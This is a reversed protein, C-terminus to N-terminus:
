TTSQIIMKQSFIFCIHSKLYSYVFPIFFSTKSMTVAYIKSLAMKITFKWMKWRWLQVFNLSFNLNYRKPKKDEEPRSKFFKRSFFFNKRFNFKLLLQIVEHFFSPLLGLLILMKWVSTLQVKHHHLSLFYQSKKQGHFIFNM